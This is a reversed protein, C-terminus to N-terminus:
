YIQFIKNFVISSKKSLKNLHIVIYLFVNLVVKTIGYILRANYITLFLECYHNDSIFFVNKLAEFIGRNDKQFAAMLIVDNKRLVNLRLVDM